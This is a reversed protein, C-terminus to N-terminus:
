WYSGFNLEVSPGAKCSKCGWESYVSEVEEFSFVTYVQALELCICYGEVDFEWQNTYALVDIEIAM